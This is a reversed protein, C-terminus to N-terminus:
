KDFEEICLIDIPELDLLICLRAFVDLAPLSKGLYYQSIAQQSVGVERAIETQTMGSKEIAEHLRDLIRKMEIMEIVEVTNYCSYFKFFAMVILSLLIQLTM